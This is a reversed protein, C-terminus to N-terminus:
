ISQIRENGWRVKVTFKSLVVFERGCECVQKPCCSQCQKQGIAAAWIPKGCSCIPLGRRIAEMRAGAGFQGSSFRSAAGFSDRGRRASSLGGRGEAAMVAGTEVIITCQNLKLTALTQSCQFTMTVYM